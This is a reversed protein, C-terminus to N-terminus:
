ARLEEHPEPPGFLWGQGFQCGMDALSDAQQEREVGEAITALSLTRALSVITEAIRAAQIDSDIDRVLVRDLKLFDVPLKRLYGLSSYGTGFDDLGVPCGLQRLSGLAQVALDFNEVVFNETVEFLLRSPSVELLGLLREVRAPLGPEFLQRPSLNVSVRSVRRMLLIGLARGLVWDGISTILGTEEALPIFVDPSVGEGGRRTWRLLAEGGAVERHTLDVVPQVLLRLEDREVAHRLETEMALREVAQTRMEESFVEVGGRRQAKARTLASDADRLISEPTHGEDRMAVGATAALNLEHGEVFLPTALSRLLEWVLRVARNPALDILVLVFTDAAFHTVVSGAPVLALLRNAIARLVTDGFSHGLSDNIRKFHDVDMFAVALGQPKGMAEELEELLSRRNPLETIPDQYAISRLYREQERLATVDTASVVIGPAAEHDLVNTAVIALTKWSGDAGKVRYEVPMDSSLGRVVRRLSAEVREHDAPHVLNLVRTGRLTAPSWGVLRAAAPNSYRITGSRDLVLLPSTTRDAIRRLDLPLVPSAGGRSPEPEGGGGIEGMSADDPMPPGIEIPM